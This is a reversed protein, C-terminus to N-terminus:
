DTLDRPVIFHVVQGQGLPLDNWNQIDFDVVLTACTPYSDFDRHEPAVHVLLEALVACGPNHALIMVCAAQQARLAKLMVEASALYLSRSHTVPIDRELGLRALTERTRTATSCLVQDPALAKARLWDGM